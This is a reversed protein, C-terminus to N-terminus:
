PAAGEGGRGTAVTSGSRHKESEDCWGEAVLEAALAELCRKTITHIGSYKYGLREATERHGCGWGYRLQLLRRSREPLRAMIRALDLRLGVHKQSMAGSSPHADLVSQDVISLWSQRRARWFMLCRRRLTGALWAEPNRVERWRSLYTLYTQQVLDDADEPPIRHFGVIAKARPRFSKVLNEFVRESPTGYQRAWRALGAPEPRESCQRLLDFSRDRQSQSKSHSSM